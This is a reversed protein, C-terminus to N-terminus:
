LRVSREVTRWPHPGRVTSAASSATRLSAAGNYDGRPDLDDCLRNASRLRRAFDGIDALDLSLDVLFQQRGPMSQLNRYAAGRCEASDVTYYSHQLWFPVSPTSGLLSGIPSGFDRQIDASTHHGFGYNTGNCGGGVKTTVFELIDAFRPM